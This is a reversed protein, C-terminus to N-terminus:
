IRRCVRPCWQNQCLLCRRRPSYPQCRLRDALHSLHWEGFPFHGNPAVPSRRARVALSEDGIRRRRSAACSPRATIRPHRLQHFRSGCQHVGRASQRFRHPFLQLFTIRPEARGQPVDDPRQQLAHLRDTFVPRRTRDRRTTGSAIPTLRGPGPPSPRRGPM